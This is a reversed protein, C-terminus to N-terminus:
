SKVKKPRGIGKATDIVVDFGFDSMEELCERYTVMMLKKILDLDYYLTGTTNITQGANTGLLSRAQNMKAEARARAKISENRLGDAKELKLKFAAMDIITSNHLPSSAGLEEHQAVIDKMLQIFKDPKNPYLPIRSIVKAM